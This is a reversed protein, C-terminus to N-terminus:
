LKLAKLLADPKGLVDALNYDMLVDFFASRAKGLVGKLACAHTVPCTSTEPTFCELLDMHPEFDRVVGALSILRPEKALVMGGGPGRKAVVYGCEVLKQVVKGLHHRNINFAESVEDITVVSEGRAALILLTRLAFDTYKTLHM